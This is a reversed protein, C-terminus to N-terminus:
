KAFQRRAMLARQSQANHRREFREEKGDEDEERRLGVLM